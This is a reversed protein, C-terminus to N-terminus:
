FRLDNTSEVVGLRIEKSIIIKDSDNKKGGYRENRNQNEMEQKLYTNHQQKSFHKFIYPIIFNHLPSHRVNGTRCYKIKKPSTKFEMNGHEMSWAGVSIIYHSKVQKRRHIKNNNGWQQRMATWAAFPFFRPLFFFTYKNDSGIVQMKLHWDNISLLM